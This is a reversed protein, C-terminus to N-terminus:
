IGVGKPLINWEQINFFEEAFEMEDLLRQPEDLADVGKAKILLEYDELFEEPDEFQCIYGLAQIPTYGLVDMLSKIIPHMIM